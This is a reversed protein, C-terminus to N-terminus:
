ACQSKCSRAQLRSGVAPSLDLLSELCVVGEIVGVKCIVIAVKNGTRWDESRDVGNVLRHIGVAIWLGAADLKGSFKMELSPALNLLINFPAGHRHGFCGRLL